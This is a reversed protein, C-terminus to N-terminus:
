AADVLTKRMHGQTDGMLNGDVYINNTTPLETGDPNTIGTKKVHHPRFSILKYTQNQIM